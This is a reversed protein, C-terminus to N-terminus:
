QWPQFEFAGIDCANGQPRALGRQDTAPCNGVAADIAPSNWLLPLTGNSLPGLQPNAQALTNGCGSWHRHDPENRTTLFQLNGGWNKLAHTCNQQLGLHWDGVNNAIISNRSAINEGVVGGGNFGARNGAITSSEIIVQVQHAVAVAGGNGKRWDDKGLTAPNVATNGHFTSNSVTTPLSTWLGGGQTDAHNNIFASNYITLYNNVANGVAKGYWIAGGTGSSAMSASKTVRNGEFYSAGIEVKDGSHVGIFVAGGHNNTTNYTYRNGVLTIKDAGGDEPKRTADIYVAGGGGCDGFRNINDTHTAHNNHFTSNLITLGSRLNNIAGGNNAHNNEFHSNEIRALSGGGIFIAGGGDCASDNEFARNNIFRSNEITLNNWFGLNIAGGQGQTYGNQFTLNRLTVTRYLDSTLIGTFWRGDLTILNSGDLTVDASIELPRSVGIVVPQTGCNFRIDGGTALASRLAAETCSGPWGQGITINNTQAEASNLGFVLLFTAALLLTLTAFRSM